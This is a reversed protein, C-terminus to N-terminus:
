EEICYHLIDKSLEQYLERKCWQLNDKLRELDHETFKYHLDTRRLYNKIRLICHKLVEAQRNENFHANAWACNIDLWWVIRMIEQSKPMWKRGYDQFEQSCEFDYLDKFYDKNKEGM